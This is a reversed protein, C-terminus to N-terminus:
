SGSANAGGGGGMGVAGPSIGVGLETLKARLAQRDLSEAGAVLMSPVMSAARNSNQLSAETGYRLTLSLDVTEGGRNKKPFLGMKIGGLKAVNLRTDSNELTPDFAEGAVVAEGGSCDKVVDAISAGTPIEMRQPSDTPIFMGLTRNHSSFYTKAVREVDEVTVDQLRDRQLFLLRWDGLSSASSLMQSMGGADVLM